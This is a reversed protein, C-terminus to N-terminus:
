SVSWYHTANLITYSQWGKPAHEETMIFKHGIHKCTDPYHLQIDHKRNNSILVCEQNDMEFASRRIQAMTNASNTHVVFSLEATGHYVGVAPIAHCYCDHELYHQLRQNAIMNQLPTSSAQHASVIVTYQKDTILTTM